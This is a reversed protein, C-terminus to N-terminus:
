ARPLWELAAAGPPEPPRSVYSHTESLEAAPALSTMMGFPSAMSFTRPAVPEAYVREKHRAAEEILGLGHLWMCTRALSVKVHYGGGQRSRRLLAALAGAAGHYAALYDNVTSTVASQPKGDFGEAMAFGM